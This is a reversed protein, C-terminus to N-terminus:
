GALPYSAEEIHIAGASALFSSYLAFRNVAFPAARFAAHSAVFEDAQNRKIDKLRALTIHPSFKREEVELGARVLTSEVKTQLAALPESKKVGTWLAHPRKGRGFTGVGDLALEFGPARIESLAFDLESAVDNRVEGIFRLTLHMNGPQIWKAGKLGCCLSKLCERIDAPLPIAVFLRIM